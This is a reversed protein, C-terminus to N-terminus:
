TLPPQEGGRVFESQLALPVGAVQYRLVVYCTDDATSGEAISQLRVFAAHYMTGVLIKLFYLQITRPFIPGTATPQVSKPQLYGEIVGRVVANESYSGAFGNYATTPFTATDSTEETTIAGNLISDLSEPITGYSPALALGAWRFSVRQGAANKLGPGAFITKTYAIESM